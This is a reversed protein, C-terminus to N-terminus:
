PQFELRLFLREAFVATRYFEVLGPDAPQRPDIGHLALLHRKFCRPPSLSLQRFDLASQPADFRVGIAVTKDAALCYVRASERDVRCVGPTGPAHFFGSFFSGFRRTDM